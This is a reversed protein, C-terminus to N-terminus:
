ESGRLNLWRPYHKSTSIECPYMSDGSPDAHTVVVLRGAPGPPYAFNHHSYKPTLKYRDDSLDTNFCEVKDDPFQMYFLSDDEYTCGFEKAVFWGEDIPIPLLCDLYLSGSGGTRRARIGIGFNGAPTSSPKEVLVQRNYPPVQCEGMEFHQFADDTVEVIPGYVPDWSYAHYSLRVEATTGSDVRARLLWLFRGCQDAYNATVNAVTIGVRTDWGAETAFTTEMDAGGSAAGSSHSSTDTQATGDECEWINQFNGPTGNKPSRIGMWVDYITYTDAPPHLKLMAIRAPVDGVIVGYNFMESADGSGQGLDQTTATTDEWYPHREVKLRLLADHDAAMGSTDIQNSRWSGAIDRVYARREGTEGDMKAHLWVPHQVTPDVRQMAAWWRMQDLAQLTTALDDHSTRDAVLDIQETVYSPVRKYVVDGMEPYWIQGRLGNGEGAIMSLETTDRKLKFVNAM